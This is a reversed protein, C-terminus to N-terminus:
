MPSVTSNSRGLPVCSPLTHPDCPLLLAGILVQLKTAVGGGRAGMVLPVEHITHPQVNGGSRLVLGIEGGGEEAITQLREHQVTWIIKCPLSHVDSIRLRDFLAKRAYTSGECCGYDVMCCPLSSHVKSGREGGRGGGGEGGKGSASKAPYFLDPLTIYLQEYNM